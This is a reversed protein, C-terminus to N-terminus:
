LAVVSGEDEKKWAGELDVGAGQTADILDVKNGRGGLQVDAGETHGFM